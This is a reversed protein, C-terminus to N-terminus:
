FLDECSEVYGCGDCWLKCQRQALAAAGCRPCTRKAPSAQAAPKLLAELLSPLRQTFASRPLVEDAGAVQAAALRQTDVHSGYAVIRPPDSARRALGIAAIPDGSADLDVILLRPAATQLAAQLADTSAVVQAIVGLAAATSTIKSRFILDSVYAAALSM